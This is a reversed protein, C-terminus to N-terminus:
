KKSAVGDPVAGYPRDVPWRAAVNCLPIHAIVHPLWLELVSVRDLVHESSLAPDEARAPNTTGPCSSVGLCLAALFALLRLPIPNRKM